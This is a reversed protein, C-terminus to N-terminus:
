DLSIGSTLELHARISVLEQLIAGLLLLVDDGLPSPAWYEGTWRLILGTDSELFSSGAPITREAATPKIDDSLGVWRQISGELRVAM